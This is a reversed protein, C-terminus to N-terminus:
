TCVYRYLIKSEVLNEQNVIVRPESNELNFSIIVVGSALGAGDFKALVKGEPGVNSFEWVLSNSESNWAGDPKSLISVQDQKTICAEIRLNSIKTPDLFRYMLLMKLGDQEKKWVLFFPLQKIGQLDHIRSLSFQLVAEQNILEGSIEFEKESVQRALEKKIVLLDHVNEMEIIKQFKGKLLIEGKGTFHIIEGQNVVVHIERNVKLTFRKKLNLDMKLSNSANSLVHLNGLSNNEKANIKIELVKHNEVENKSIRYGQDDVDWEKAEQKIEKAEEKAEKTDITAITAVQQIEKKYFLKSVTRLLSSNKKKQANELQHSIESMNALIDKVIDKIKDRQVIREKSFIEKVLRSNDKIKELIDICEEM